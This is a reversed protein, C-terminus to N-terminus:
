VTLLHVSLVSLCCLCVSAGASELDRYLQTRLGQLVDPVYLCPGPPGCDQLPDLGDGRRHYDHTSGTDDDPQAGAVRLLKENGYPDGVLFQLTHRGESGPLPDGHNDVPLNVQPYTPEGTFSM